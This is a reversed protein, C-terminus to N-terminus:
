AGDSLMNQVATDFEKVQIEGPDSHIHIHTHVYQTARALSLNVISHRCTSQIHMFFLVSTSFISQFRVFEHACFLIKEVKIENNIAYFNTSKQLM